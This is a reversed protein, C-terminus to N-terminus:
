IFDGPGIELILTHIKENFIFFTKSTDEIGAIAGCLWRMLDSPAIGAPKCFATRSGLKIKNQL